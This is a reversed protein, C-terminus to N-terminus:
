LRLNLLCSLVAAITTLGYCLMEMAGALAESPIMTFM